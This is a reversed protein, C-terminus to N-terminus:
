AGRGRNMTDEIDNILLSAFKLLEAHNRFGRIEKPPGPIPDPSRAAPAIGGGVASPAYAAPGAPPGDELPHLANKFLKAMIGKNIEQTPEQTFGPIAPNVGEPFIEHGLDPRQFEAGSLPKPATPRGGHKKSIRDLIDSFRFM